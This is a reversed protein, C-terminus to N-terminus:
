AVICAASQYTQATEFISKPQQADRILAVAAVVAVILYVVVMVRAAYGFAPWRTNRWCRWISVWAFLLFAVMMAWALPMLVPVYGKTLLLTGYLIWFGLTGLLWFASALSAKGQWHATLTTRAVHEQSRM